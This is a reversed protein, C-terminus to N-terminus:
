GDGERPVGPGDRGDVPEAATALRARRALNLGVTPFALASIKAAGVLAAVVVSSLAGAELGLNAVVVVAALGTGVLLATASREQLSSDRPLTVSGPVGRVVLLLVVFLPILLVAQPQAILGPLDFTVGAKVFFIPVFVGFATGRMKRELAVREPADTRTLLRRVVMGAGFAGLLRDVGLFVALLVVVAVVLLQLRLGLQGGSNLTATQVRAVFPPLGRSSVWLAAAVAAAFLLHAGLSVLPNRGGVIVALAILPGFQGIVGSSVVARGVKTDVEGADRMMPLITGLGTSVLSAGIFVGSVVLPTSVDMPFAVAVAIGVAVGLVLCALWAGSAVALPRGRMPAFDTEYGAVFFLLVVGISALASTLPDPGVLSLVGPGIVIGLFMEAVVVPVRVVPALAATLLPALAAVALVIVLSLLARDM